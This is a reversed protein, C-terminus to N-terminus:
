STGGIRGRLADSSIVVVMRSRADGFAGRLNVGNVVQQMTRLVHSAANSSQVQDLYPSRMEIDFQLSVLRTQQSLQDLTLQDWARVELDDAYQMVFPDAASIYQNCGASILLAEQICHHRPVPPIPLSPLQKLPRTLVPASPSASLRTPPPQDSPLGFLVSRILSYEGSYASALAAGSNFIEQVQTAAINPDVKAVNAAIPDFVPDPQSIPYSIPYSHVPVTLNPILGTGFATATM